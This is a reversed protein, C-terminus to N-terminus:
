KIALFGEFCGWKFVTMIDHFGARKLQDINGQTSFPEMMGKLSRTKGIIEVENFGNDLKFETYIQNMYDQFRGDSSRVKEFVLFGGGWNLEKYIKNVLDQRISQHIFQLCYYSTILHSGKYNVEFANAVSFEIRKDFGFKEKAKKIMGEERDFALIKLDNKNKHRNGIKGAIEGTSTGIDIIYTDNTFFHDSIKAVLDQGEVYLPISMRVHDDFSEEINSFSWSAHDKEIDNGTKGM